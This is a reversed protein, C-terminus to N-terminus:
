RQSTRVSAAVGDDYDAVYRGQAPNYASDVAATQYAMFVVDPRGQNYRRYTAHDWGAPAYDDNWRLRAAPVFGEEAYIKPLVTDFCDLRRGGAAVATSILSQACGSHAADRRSFM